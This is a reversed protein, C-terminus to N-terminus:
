EDGGIRDAETLAAVALEYLADRLASPGMDRAAKVREELEVLVDPGWRPKRPPPM